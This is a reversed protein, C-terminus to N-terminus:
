NSKDAFSICIASLINQEQCSSDTHEKLGKGGLLGLHSQKAFIQIDILTSIM